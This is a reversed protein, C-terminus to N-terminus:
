SNEVDYVRYGALPHVLGLGLALGYAAGGLIAGKGSTHM